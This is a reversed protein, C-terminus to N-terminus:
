AALATGSGEGRFLANVLDTQTVLGILRGASDTVPTHHVGAEGMLRVLDAIPTDASARYPVGGMIREVTSRVSLGAALGSRLRGATRLSPRGVGRGIAEVFDEPRLMGVVVGNGDTVPLVRLGRSHMIDWANAISEHPSVTIIHRSMVDGCLLGGSRRRFAEEEAARLITVLDEPAVDIVENQERLVTRLDDLTFGTRERPAADATGHRSAPRRALWHPYRHGTLNHFAVAVLLILLSNLGVPAFAFGYGLTDVAPGALVTTVAVAGGPPHLCRLLFMTVIALCVALSAAILPDPIWMRCTIGILAASVNGGLISWPQSLPGSPVAFLLVASAGMPAVLLPVATDPGLAWRTVLGTLAIGILAGVAARLQEARSVPALRPVFRALSAPLAFTSKLM